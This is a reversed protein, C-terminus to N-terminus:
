LFISCTTTKDGGVDEGGGGFSLEGLSSVTDDDGGGKDRRARPLSPSAAAAAHILTTVGRRRTVQAKNANSAVLQRLARDSESSSPEDGTEGIGGGGMGGLPTNGGTWNTCEQMDVGAERLEEVTVKAGSINSISGDDNNSGSNNNNNNTSTTDTTGNSKDIVHSRCEEVSLGITSKLDHVFPKGLLFRLTSSKGARGEGVIMLRSRRWPCSDQQLADELMWRFVLSRVDRLVDLASEDFAHEPRPPQPPLRSPMQLRYEPLHQLCLSQMAEPSAMAESGHGDDGSISGNSKSSVDLALGLFLLLDDLDASSIFNVQKEAFVMKQVHDKVQRQLMAFPMPRRDLSHHMLLSELWNFVRGFARYDLTAQRLVSLSMQSQADKPSLFKNFAADGAGSAADIGDMDGCTAGRSALFRIYAINKNAYVFHLLTKGDKDQAHM